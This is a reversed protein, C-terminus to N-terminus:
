QPTIGFVLSPVFPTTEGSKLGELTAQYRPNNPERRIAEQLMEQAKQKDGNQFEAWAEHYPGVGLEPHERDVQEAQDLEKDPDMYRLFDEYLKTEYYSRPDSDKIASMQDLAKEASQWRPDDPKGAALQAANLRSVADAHIAEPLGPNLELLREAVDAVQEPNSNDHLLRAVMKDTLVRPDAIEKLPTQSTMAETLNARYDYLAADCAPSRKGSACALLFQQHWKALEAPIKDCAAPTAPLSLDAQSMDLGRLQNWFDLCAAPLTASAQVHIPARPLTYLEKRAKPAVIAPHETVPAVPAPQSRDWWRYVGAAIALFLFFFIAKRM